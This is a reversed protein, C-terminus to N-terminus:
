IEEGVKQFEFCVEDYDGTAVFSKGVRQVHRDEDGLDALFDWLGCRRTDDCAGDIVIDGLYQRGRIVWEMRGIQRESNLCEWVRESCVRYARWTEPLEPVGSVEFVPKETRNCYEKM